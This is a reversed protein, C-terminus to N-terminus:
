TVTLKRIYPSNSLLGNQQKEKLKRKEKKLFFLFILSNSYRRNFGIINKKIIM